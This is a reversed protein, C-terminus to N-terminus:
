IKGNKIEEDILNNITQKEIEDDLYLSIASRLNKLAEEATNGFTHCGKLEPCYAHYKTGDKKIKFSLMFRTKHAIVRM